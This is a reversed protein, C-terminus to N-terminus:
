FEFVYLFRIHIPYKFVRVRILSAIPFERDHFLEVYGDRRHFFKVAPIRVFARPSMEEGDDNDTLIFGQRSDGDGNLNYNPYVDNTILAFCKM